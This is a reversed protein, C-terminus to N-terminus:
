ETTQLIPAPMPNPSKNEKEVGYVTLSILAKGVINMGM